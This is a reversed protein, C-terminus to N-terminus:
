DLLDLLSKKRKWRMSGKGKSQKKKGHRTTTAKKKLEMGRKKGMHYTKKCSLM